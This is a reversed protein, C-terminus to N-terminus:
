LGGVGSGGFVDNSELGRWWFHGGPHMTLSSGVSSQESWARIHEENLSPDQVGGHIAIFVPLPPSPEYVYNRYLGTDARLTRISLSHVSLPHTGPTDRDLRSIEALLEADTPETADLRKKRLQPARASSVILREPLPLNERRLARTLEFAVGAGMSHGFFCFRGAARPRFADLLKAILDRMDTLPAEQMRTERGPLRVGVVRHGRLRVWRYDATGGGAHPFCFLVAAADEQPSHLSVFWEAPARRTKGLRLALLKKKADSLDRRQSFDKPEPPNRSRKPAEVIEALHRSLPECTLLAAYALAAQRSRASIDEYHAPDSVLRQLADVWPGIDQPPVEAVPVMNADVSPRYHQIPNVPLLYPVGLKAEHLGGVDSALVPISRIMAEVVMRSRAEAWVSPVLVVKALRLLDAIDDVPEFIRINPRRRLEEQDEANTGWTPVAAFDLHPLAAALATFISIGKVACPNVMLIYPNTFRGLPSYDAPELLSIPLHTAPLGSWKRVYEAVYESVGIISDVRGITATKATSPFACDPGFPVAVTARVLYVVRPRSYRLAVELLLAAPDDTSCLIVDPDFQEIRQAFAHRLHPTGALTFVRAGNREFEVVGNDVSIADLGRAALEAIFAREEGAGFSELRAFVQVEHGVAALAEM